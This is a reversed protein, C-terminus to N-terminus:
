RMFELRTKMAHILRIIWRKGKFNEYGKDTETRQFGKLIESIDKKQLKIHKSFRYGVITMWVSDGLYKYFVGWRQHNWFTVKVKYKCQWHNGNGSEM